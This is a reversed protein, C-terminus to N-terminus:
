GTTMSGTPSPSTMPNSKVVRPVSRKAPQGSTPPRAARGATPGTSSLLREFDLSTLVNSYLGYGYEGKQRADYIDFGPALIVAGVKLDFVGDTESHRIAKKKCAQECQFCECCAACNLCRGAEAIAEERTLGM